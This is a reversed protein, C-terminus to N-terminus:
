LQQIICRDLALALGQISNNKRFQIDPESCFVTLGDKNNLYFEFSLMANMKRLTLPRRFFWVKFNTLAHFLRQFSPSSGM